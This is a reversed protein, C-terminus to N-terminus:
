FCPSFVCLAMVLCTTLFSLGTMLVVLNWPGVREAALGMLIRGMVGAIGIVAVSFFSVNPDVDHQVAFDEIYDESLCGLLPDAQIAFSLPLFSVYSPVM